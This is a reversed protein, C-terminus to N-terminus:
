KSQCVVDYTFTHNCGPPWVAGRWRGEDDRVESGLEERIRVDQASVEKLFSQDLDIHPVKTDDKRLNTWIIDEVLERDVEEQEPNSPSIPFVRLEHNFFHEGRLAPLSTASCYWRSTLVTQSILLISRTM